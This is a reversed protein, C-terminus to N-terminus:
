WKSLTQLLIQASGYIRSIYERSNFGYTKWSEWAWSSILLLGLLEPVWIDPYRLGALLIEIHSSVDTPHALSFAGLLPWFLIKPSAWMYDLIFHGLVGAAMSTLRLDKMFLAAMSLLILFLLTHALARGPMGPVIFMLPKDILDPLISGLALFKLSARSWFRNTAIALGIHAFLLM